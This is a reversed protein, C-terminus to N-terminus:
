RRGITPINRFKLSSVSPRPMSYLSVFTPALANWAEALFMGSYIFGAENHRKKSQVFMEVYQAGTDSLM